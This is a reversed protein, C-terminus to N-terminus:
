RPYLQNWKEIIKLFYQEPDIPKDREQWIESAEQDNIIIAKDLLTELQIHAIMPDFAAHQKATCNYAFGVFEIGLRDMEEEVNRLSEEKDDVFVIKQPKYNMKEFVHTLLQGKDLNNTTYFIGEHFYEAFHQEIDDLEKPLQTKSFDIHLTNLLKETMIDIDPTQTSYWEHRGRSTFAFVPVGLAQMEKILSPTSSDPVKPPVNKFVYLSLEDHTKTDLRKRIYKRWAQTGLSIETDMLVEAINLLLLTDISVEKKIVQIDDTKIVVCEISFTFLALSVVLTTLLKKM